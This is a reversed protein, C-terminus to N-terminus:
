KTKRYRQNIVRGVTSYRVMGEGDKSESRFGEDPRARNDALQSRFLEDFRADDAMLMAGTNLEVMRYRLHRDFEAVDFRFVEDMLERRPLERDLAIVGQDTVGLRTLFGRASRTKGDQNRLLQTASVLERKVVPDTTRNVAVRIAEALRKSGLPGTTRLDSALFDGTWYMSLERPGSLQRDVARGEEFGATLSTTYYIVSKYATANKMFVREIFEVDLRDANEQAVVGQEAPFRSIVLVHSDAVEAKALFLLGLGSRNTTVRQLREAIVRGHELSPNRLYSELCTRCDNDPTGEENPRFMVEVDCEIPARDCLDQLMNFLQGQMPVKTGSAAPQPDLHKAAQVLFSHIASINMHDGLRKATTTVRIFPAGVALGLTNHDPKM